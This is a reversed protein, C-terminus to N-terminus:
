AVRDMVHPRKEDGHMHYHRKCGAVSFYTNSGFYILSDSATVPYFNNKIEQKQHPSHNLM